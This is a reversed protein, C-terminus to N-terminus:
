NVTRQCGYHHVSHQLFSASCVLPKNWTQWCVASQQLLHQQQGSFHGKNFFNIFYLLKAKCPVQHSINRLLTFIFSRHFCGSQSAGNGLNSKKESTYLENRSVNLWAANGKVNWLCLHVALSCANTVSQALSLCINQAWCIAQRGICFVIALPTVTNKM